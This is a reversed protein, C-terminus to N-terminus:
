TWRWGAPYENKLMGDQWKGWGLAFGDVCVLCYGKPSVQDNWQLQDRDIHLTEGKLYRICDSEGSSLSVSRRVEQPTLGLALPHSPEFRNKKLTGIFWGPRSVKLGELSPIDAKSWYVHSGYHMLESDPIEISLAEKIFTRVWELEETSLLTAKDMRHAAKKQQVNELEESEQQNTGDHQLIAFFHGEGQMKHPWIRGTGSIENHMQETDLDYSSLWDVRGSSLGYSLPVPTITFESHNDLFEAIMMENEEPSFTCTSYVIRGGPALLAAASQLIDRQM